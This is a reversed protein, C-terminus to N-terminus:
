LKKSIKAHKAKKERAVDFNLSFLCNVKRKIDSTTVIRFVNNSILKLKSTPNSSFFWEFKNEEKELKDMESM